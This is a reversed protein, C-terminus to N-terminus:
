LIIRPTDDKLLPAVQKALQEFANGMCVTACNMAYGLDEKTLASAGVGLASFGRADLDQSDKPLVASSSAFIMLTGERAAALLGELHTILAEDTNSM